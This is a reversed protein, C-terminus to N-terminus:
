KTFKEAALKIVKLQHKIFDTNSELSDIDYWNAGEPFQYNEDVKGLYIQAVEPGRDTMVPIVTVFEPRDLFKTKIEKEEVRELVGALPDGDERKYDAFRFAGGPSHIKGKWIIDDAPRPILLAEVKDGNKRLIVTEVTPTPLIGSLVTFLKSSLPGGKWKKFIEIVKEDDGADFGDTADNKM